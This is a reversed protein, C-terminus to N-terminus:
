HQGTQQREGGRERRQPMENCGARKRSSLLTTQAFSSVPASINEAIASYMRDGSKRALAASAAALRTALFRVAFV